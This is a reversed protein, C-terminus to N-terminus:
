HRGTRVFDFFYGLGGASNIILYYKGLGVVITYSHAGPQSEGVRNTEGMESGCTGRGRWPLLLERMM